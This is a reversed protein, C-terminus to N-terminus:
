GVAIPAISRIIARTLKGARWTLDVEYGGRARLGTILSNEMAKRLALAEALEGLHARLGADPYRLLHALVRLTLRMTPAQTKFM